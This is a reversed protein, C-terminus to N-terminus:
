AVPVKERIIHLFANVVDPDFQKGVGQRIEEVAEWPPMGKRYPRDTLMADYADAVSLIRAEIPIEDFKLQNYGGGDFYEHHTLILPVVERLLGGVREVLFAGKNTHTKIERMEDESLKGAKKLVSTSIEIKGIDHLLAAVRVNEIQDDTLGMVTALQASLESVRVSHDKTYKDISDVFKSIIELVGHYAERLDKLHREKADYLHGVVYATIVLFSAWITLDWFLSFSTAQSPIYLSPNVIAFLAVLLACVVGVLVGKRKGLIYAAVLTPLYYFNLFALKNVIVFNILALAAVLLLILTAEFHNFMIRKSTTFIKELM